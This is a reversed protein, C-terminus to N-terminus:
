KRQVMPYHDITEFVNRPDQKLVSIFKTLSDAYQQKGFLRDHSLIVIANEEHGTGNDFVYNVKRLMETVSEKPEAGKNTWEIDWGIVNYGLSDFRKCVNLSSQPGKMVGKGVWSNMGPLRVIKTPFNFEAQCKMFDAIVSDPRLYFGKYGVKAAHSYSHNATLFQPYDNKLSDIIRVGRQSYANMGVVFFTAKVGQETFVKKCNTTGPPQPSDDWTLFIYRKSSDYKIPDGPKPKAAAIKSSDVKSKEKDSNSGGCASLLALGALGLTLTIGSTKM